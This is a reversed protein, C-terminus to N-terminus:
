MEKQRDTLQIGMKELTEKNLTGTEKVGNQKQWVKISARFDDNFKGDEVGSYLNAAKLKQQVTTIQEATARFVAGRKKTEGTSNASALDNPNAPIATQTETLSINMKELTARNLSGSKKLGNEGQFEKISARFDDNYKGDAEGAYSGTTKLNKQAQMIQDKSARFVIRKPKSDDAPTEIGKQSDTLAIGMKMLTAENLNGSKELSNAEQYKKLGARFDDNYKGDAEGAYTGSTKLKAQAETIQTKTPRFAKKRISTDATTSTTSNKNATETQANIAIGLLFITVLILSRKM